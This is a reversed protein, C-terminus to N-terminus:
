DGPTWDFYLHLKKSESQESLIVDPKHDSLNVVNGSARSSLM